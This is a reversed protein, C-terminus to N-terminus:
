GPHAALIAKAVIAALKKQGLANPHFIGANELIQAPGVVFPQESGLEHGRFAYETDAYIFGAHHAAVLLDSDLDSTLHNFDAVEGSLYM